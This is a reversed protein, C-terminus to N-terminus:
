TEHINLRRMGSAHCYIDLNRVLTGHSGLGNRAGTAATNMMPGKWKWQRKACLPSCSIM